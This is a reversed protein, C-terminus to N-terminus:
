FPKILKKNIKNLLNMYFELKEIDETDNLRKRMNMLDENGVMDFLQLFTGLFTLYDEYKDKLIDLKLSYLKKEM